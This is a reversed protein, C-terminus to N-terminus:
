RRDLPHAPVGVVTAGPEVNRTVVAGAGVVAFDGVSIGPLITAGAGIFCATGLRAKGSVTVGPGVITHDGVTVDHSVLSHLRVTVYDGIVTQSGVVCGESLLCGKGIQVYAMDIAPHILSPVQCGHSELLEAIAKSKSWHSVVNSFVQVGDRVLEPLRERGGIVSHGLCGKGQLELADDLFGVLNWTPSQRNIADLLKLVMVHSAGYFVLNRTM